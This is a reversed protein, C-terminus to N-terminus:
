ECNGGPSHGLPRALRSERVPVNNRSFMGRPHRKWSSRRAFLADCESELVGGILSCTLGGAAREVVEEAPLAIHCSQLPESMECFSHFCREPLSVCHTVPAAFRTRM